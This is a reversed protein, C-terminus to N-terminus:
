SHTSATSVIRSGTTATDILKLIKRQVALLVYCLFEIRRTASSRFYMSKTAQHVATLLNVRRTEDPVQPMYQRRHEPLDGHYNNFTMLMALKVEIMM